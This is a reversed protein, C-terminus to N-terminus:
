AGGNVVLNLILGRTNQNLLPMIAAREHGTLFCWEVANEKTSTGVIDGKSKSDLNISKELAMDTWVQAFHQKSHSIGHKESIFQRYVDPHNSELMDIDLIYM